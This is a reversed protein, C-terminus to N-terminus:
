SYKRFMNGGASPAKNLEAIPKTFSKNNLLMHTSDKM